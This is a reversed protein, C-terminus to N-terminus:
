EDMLSELHALEEDTMARGASQEFRNRVLDLEPNSYSVSTDRLEQPAAPVIRTTLGEQQQLHLEYLDALRAVEHRLQSIATILPKLRILTVNM